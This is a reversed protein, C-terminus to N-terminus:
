VFCPDTIKSAEVLVGCGAWGQHGSALGTRWQVGIKGVVHLENGSSTDRFCQAQVIGNSLEM